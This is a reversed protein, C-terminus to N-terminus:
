GQIQVLLQQGRGEAGAIPLPPQDPRRQHWRVSLRARSGPQHEHFAPSRAVDHHSDTRPGEGVGRLRLLRRRSHGFPALCAGMTGDFAMSANQHDEVSTQRQSGELATVVEGINAFRDAPARELCRLITEEWVPDLDPVHIRPSQPLEQLRKVATRLPTEAMFPWTGTVMEFLLVGLAYIDTAPTVPGGEVQEPAMYAPTGSIESTDSLLAISTQDGHASRRALGFDTIVARPGPNPPSAEVLMVNHSKFDRHVVGVHHAAALGAAM